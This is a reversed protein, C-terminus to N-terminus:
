RFSYYAVIRLFPEINEGLSLNYLLV